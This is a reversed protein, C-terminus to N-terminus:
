TDERTEQERILYSLSGRYDFPQSVFKEFRSLVENITKIRSLNIFDTIIQERAAATHKKEEEVFRFMFYLRLFYEENFLNNYQQNTYVKPQIILNKIKGNCVDYSTFASDAVNNYMNLIQTKFEQYYSLHVQKYGVLLLSELTTYGYKSMLGDIVDKNGVDLTIKWPSSKDVMFGFSNCINLYYEFNPSRIFFDIKQQDDEYSLDAIEITLGNTNYDNFRSKIFATKTFPYTKGVSTVYSKLFEIFEPLNAFNIEDNSVKM